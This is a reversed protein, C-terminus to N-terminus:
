IGDFFTQRKGYFEEIIHWSKNRVFSASDVSDVGLEACYRLRELTGVQGVHIKKGMEKAMEVYRELNAWKWEPTGGVFYWSAFYTEFKVLTDDMDDKGSHLQHHFIALEVQGSAIINGFVSKTGECISSGIALFFISTMM